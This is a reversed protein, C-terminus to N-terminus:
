DTGADAHHHVTAMDGTFDSVHGASVDLPDPPCIGVGGDPLIVEHDHYRCLSPPAEPRPLAPGCETLSSLILAVTPIKLKNM